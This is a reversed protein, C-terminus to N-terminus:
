GAFMAKAQTMRERIKVRQADTLGPQNLASSLRNYLAEAATTKGDGNLDQAAAGTEGTQGATPTLATAEPTAPTASLSQLEGEMAMVARRAAEAIAPNKAGELQLTRIDDTLKERREQVDRQTARGARIRDMQEREMRAAEAEQQKGQVQTQALELRAAREKEGEGARFARDQEAQQAAAETSLRTAEVQGQARAEAPRGFKAELQAMVNQQRQEQEATRQTTAAEQDAIRQRGQQTMSLPATRQRLAALREQQQAVRRLQQEQDQTRFLRGLQQLRSADAGPPLAERFSELGLGPINSLQRGGAEAFYQGPRLSQLDIGSESPLGAANGIGGVPMLDRRRPMIAM